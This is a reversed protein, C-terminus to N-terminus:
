VRVRDTEEKKVFFSIHCRELKEFLSGSGGTPKRAVKLTSLTQNTPVSGASTSKTRPMGQIANANRATFLSVLSTATETQRLDAGLLSEGTMQANPASIPELKDLRYRHQGSQITLTQDKGRTEPLPM